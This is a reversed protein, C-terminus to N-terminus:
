ESNGGEEKFREFTGSILPNGGDVMLEGKAFVKDIRYDDQDVVVLDADFGEGIVGKNKLGLAEAPNKTILPIIEGLQFDGTHLIKKVEDYLSTVKGVKLGILEGKDNFDPLSGQGDSSFSILDFDVGQERAALLLDNSRLGKAPETGGNSTTFDIRGGNLSFKLGQNLVEQNRNVHTPLFQARPIESKSIAEEIFDFGSKGSGLHINVVGSKGSLMGGTRALSVARLFEDLNPHASRHDAIAIEGLGIVKDIYIIDKDIAGTLTRIPFQYSGTYIYTSIGEEALGRAKALLDAMNRTTGDTGLCGVVTTVGGATIQSLKIPPTRSAFGSEGGGGTLHVHNDIFGPLLYDGGLDFEKLGPLNISNFEKEIAIIKGGAIIIDVIEENLRDLVRCNKLYVIGSSIDM